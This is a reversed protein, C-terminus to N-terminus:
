FILHRSNSFDFSLPIVGWHCVSYETVDANYLM